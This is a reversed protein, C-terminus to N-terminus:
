WTDLQLKKQAPDYGLLEKWINLLGEREMDIRLWPPETDEHIGFNGYIQMLMDEENTAFSASLLADWV